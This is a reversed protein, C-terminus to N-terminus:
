VHARGILNREKLTKAIEVAHKGGSASILVAGDIDDVRKLVEQYSSENAFVADSQSFIIRGTSLANGSGVVLPRRFPVDTQPLDISEFLELAGIVVTDLDPLNELTFKKLTDTASM